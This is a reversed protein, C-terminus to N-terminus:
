EVAQKPQPLRKAIRVLKALEVELDHRKSELYERLRRKRVFLFFVKINERIRKNEGRVALAVAVGVILSVLYLLFWVLGFYRYVVFCQISWFLAFSIFGVVIKATDHQDTGKAYRRSLFRTLYFPIVSNLIGWLALPFVFLVMGLTRIIYITILIPRYEVTLHYDKVGWTRCLREFMRLQSIISRVRNPEYHRLLRQGEILRQLTRFRTTLDRQRYKGHRFAFFRELRDVLDIDQWSEANLTVASLGDAIRQTLLRIADRQNIDRSVELDIPKGYQVLVDSRFQGKRTFTLGVAIVAPAEGNTQVAGLAMRAAGTKLDHLHPDSHSQGEPFIILTEHNALLEYCRAFSDVNRASDSGPDGRRYIPVAGITEMIPKLVRHEFLGSRALPRIVLDTSAQIVVPDVLANVHNACLIIGQNQPINELGSVEFRRYFVNVVNKCLRQWVRVFLTHSKRRSQSTVETSYSDM